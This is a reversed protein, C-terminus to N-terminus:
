VMPLLEKTTEPSAFNDWQPGVPPKEIQERGKRPRVGSPNKSGESKGNLCVQIEELSMGKTEPVRTCIFLLGAAVTGGLLLFTQGWGLLGQVIPFFLHTLFKAFFNVEVSLAMATGRIEAPYIESLVTWTIPGFGVQYASIFVFMSWLVVQRKLDSLKEDLNQNWGWFGFALCGLSVMMITSGAVLLTKRGLRDVMMVTFTSVFGMITVTVVSTHGKWGAAAFLVRSYALVCPQGSFQQAVLLGMGIVMISRYRPSCLGPPPSGQYAGNDGVDTGGGNNQAFNYIRDSPGFEEIGSYVSDSDDSEQDAHFSAGSRCCLSSITEAMQEFEEEVNGKYVFQMSERAEDHYGKM